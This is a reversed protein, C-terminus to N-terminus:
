WNKGGTSSFFIFDGVRLRDFAVPSPTNKAM